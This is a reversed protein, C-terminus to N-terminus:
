HHQEPTKMTLKKCIKCKKRTNRNSVKFLYINAPIFLFSDFCYEAIPGNGPCHEMEIVRSFTSSAFTSTPSLNTLRNSIHSKLIEGTCRSYMNNM